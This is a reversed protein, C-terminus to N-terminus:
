IRELARRLRDAEKDMHGRQLVYVADWVVRELKQIREERIAIAADHGAWQRVLAWSPRYNQLLELLYDEGRRVESIWQQETTEVRLLVAAPEKACFAKALVLAEDVPLHARGSRDVYGPAAIEKTELGVRATFRALVDVECDLQGKHFVMPEGTSSFVLEVALAVPYDPGTYGHSQNYEQLRRANDDEGLFARRAKWPAVLQRSAVYNVLRPQPRDV